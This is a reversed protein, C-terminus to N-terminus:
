ILIAVLFSYISKRKKTKQLNVLKKHISNERHRLQPDFSVLAEIWTSIAPLAFWMFWILKCSLSSFSLLDIGLGRTVFAFVFSLISLSDTLSLARLYFGCSTKAFLRRSYVIYSLTNGFLGTAIIIPLGITNLGAVISLKVSASSDM